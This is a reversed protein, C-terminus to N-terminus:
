RRRATPPCRRSPMECRTTRRSPRLPPGGPGGRGSPHCARDPDSPAGRVIRTIREALPRPGDVGMSRAVNPTMSRRRRDGTATRDVTTTRPAGAVPRARAFRQRCPHILIDVGVVPPPIARTGPGGGCPTRVPPDGSGGRGCPRVRAIPDPPARRVIETIRVAMPPHRRQRRRVCRRRPAPAVHTAGPRDWYGRRERVAM